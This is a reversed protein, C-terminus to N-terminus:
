GDAAIPRQDAPPVVSVPLDVCTVDTYAANMKYPLERMGETASTDDEPDMPMMPINRKFLQALAGQTGVKKKWGLINKDDLAAKLQTIVAPRYFDNKM